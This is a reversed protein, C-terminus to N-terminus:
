VKPTSHYLTIFILALRIAYSVESELEDTVVWERPDDEWYVHVTFFGHEDRRLIWEDSVRGYRSLWQFSHNGDTIRWKRFDGKWVTRATATVGMCNIEWLNPDDHWKQRITAVTDGLRFDWETWDDRFAWRLELTGTRDEDPTHIIWEKFSDSYRTGVGIVDQAALIGINIFTCVICLFRRMSFFNPKMVM